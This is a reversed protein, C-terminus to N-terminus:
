SRGEVPLQKRDTGDYNIFNLYQTQMKKEEDKSVEIPIEHKRRANPRIALRLAGVALLAGAAFCLLCLVVQM